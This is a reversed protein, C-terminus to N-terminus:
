PEPGQFGRRRLAAQLRRLIAKQRRYVQFPSTAGVLRSVERVSLGDEFRLKLLLQDLPDLDSVALTLALSLERVRLDTEPNSGGPDTLHSVDLEEALLDVLQRRVAGAERSRTSTKDPRGYRQRVHDVCLRRAVVLLWATFGSRDDSVYARLRHFDDRRLQELLYAYVDMTADYDRGMGRAAHLLLPSHTEIFTKWAAERALQNTADLLASM